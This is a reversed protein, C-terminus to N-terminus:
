ITVQLINGLSHFVRPRRDDVKDHEASSRFIRSTRDLLDSPDLSSRVFASCDQASASTADVEEKTLLGSEYSLSAQTCRQRKVFNEGDAESNEGAVRLEECRRFIDRAVGCSLAAITREIRPQRQEVGLAKLYDNTVTEAEDCSLPDLRVVHDFSSDIENKGEVGGLYMAALADNSLSVYYYLGPIEFIGKIRRAFGRMEEFDVIKDLEDICIIVRENRAEDGLAGNQVRKVVTTAFNRYQDILSMFGFAYPRSSSDTRVSDGTFRRIAFITVFAVVLLFGIEEVELEVLELLILFLFAGVVIALSGGVLVSTTSSAWSPPTAEPRRGEVLVRARLFRIVDRAERYLFVAHPNSVRERELWRSLDVPQARSLHYVLAVVSAVFVGTIPLAAIGFEEPKALRYTFDWGIFALLLTFGGYLKTAVGRASAEAERVSLAAAGLQGAIASETRLALKELASTVFEEEQFHSPAAIWARIGRSESGTSGHCLEYLVRSKGVGRRGVVAITGWGKGGLMRLRELLGSRGQIEVPTGLIYKRQGPDPLEKEAVERYRDRSILKRSGTEAIWMLLLMLPSFILAALGLGAAQSLFGAHVVASQLTDLSHEGGSAYLSVALRLLIGDQDGSDQEDVFSRFADALKKNDRFVVDAALRKLSLRMSSDIVELVALSELSRLAGIIGILKRLNSDFLHYVPFTPNSNEILKQLVDKIEKRKPDIQRWVEYVASGLEDQPPNGQPAEELYAQLQSFFAPGSQFLIPPTSLDKLDFLMRPVDGAPDKRRYYTFAARVEPGLSDILEPLQDTELNPFELALEQRGIFNAYLQYQEFALYGEDRSPLTLQAQLRGRYIGPELSPFLNFDQAQDGRILGVLGQNFPGKPAYTQEVRDSYAFGEEYVRYSPNAHSRLAHIIRHDATQELRQTATLGPLPLGAQSDNGGGTPHIWRLRNALFVGKRELDLNYEFYDRLRRLESIRRAQISVPNPRPPSNPDEQAQKRYDEIDEEIQEKAAAVDQYFSQYDGELRVESALAYFIALDSRETDDEVTQVLKLASESMRPSRPDTAVNRMFEIGLAASCLLFLGACTLGM